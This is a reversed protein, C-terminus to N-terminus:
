SANEKDTRAARVRAADEASLERAAMVSVKTRRRLFVWGSVVLGIFLIPPAVWLLLGDRDAPPKMLVYDGYRAVFYGVIEEKSRGAQLQERIIQRMDKALDANSESVPQNQCVACRLDKSIDLVARDLPNEAVDSALVPVVFLLSVAMMIAKM